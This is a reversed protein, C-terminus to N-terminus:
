FILNFEAMKAEHEELTTSYYVTGDGYIDALFYLYDTEKPHLAALIANEGPNIVPGIPLGPHIYTNYLSDVDANIECAEPSDFDDYLSYCVTVSSGLTMGINLRNQFVGSVLYMDEVKSSEFQIMSALIVNEHVSRESSDFDSKYKQYIKDFHNLFTETVEEATAKKNFAYTEPFLYGELKVHYNENLIDETLFDYKQIMKNLFEEDNWLSIFENAEIPLKESLKDAIDKAWLNEQFTIMVEDAKANKSNTLFALVEKTSWSKDLQFSGAKLDNVHNLKSYIKATTNNRIIGENELRIVVNNISDGEVVQFSVVESEKQVAKLSSSYYVFGAIIIAVIVIFSIAIVNKTKNKKM